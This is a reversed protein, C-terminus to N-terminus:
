FPCKESNEHDSSADKSLDEIKKTNDPEIAEIIGQSNLEGVYIAKDWNCASKIQKTLLETTDILITRLLIANTLDVGSLNAGRLDTGSLNAGSLNADRLNASRLDAGSLDAKSLDAEILIAENLDAKILVAEKLETEILITKELDAQFLNAKNLIAKKFNAKQFKALRLDTEQLDARRLDAEQLNLEDFYARPAALGALSQREWNFSIWPFTSRIKPFRIPESNLFELAEKRGGSGPQNNAAAIVQWAQYIETNRRQQETLIFSILVIVITIHEIRALIKLIAIKQLSDDVEKLKDNTKQLCEKFKGIM